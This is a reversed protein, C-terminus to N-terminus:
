CVSIACSGAWDVEFHGSVQKIIVNMSLGSCQPLKVKIVIFPVYVSDITGSVKLTEYLWVLTLHKSGVVM